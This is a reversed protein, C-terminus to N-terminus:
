AEKGRQCHLRSLWLADVFGLDHNARNLIQGSRESAVSFLRTVAHLKANFFEILLAADM